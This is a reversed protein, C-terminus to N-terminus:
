WGCNYLAHRQYKKDRNKASDDNQQQVSQLIDVRCKRAKPAHSEARKAIKHDPQPLRELGANCMAATPGIVPEVAARRCPNAAPRAVRRLPLWSNATPQVAVRNLYM